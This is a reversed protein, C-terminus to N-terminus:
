VACKRLRIQIKMPRMKLLWSHLTGEHPHSVRILNRTHEHHNSDENQTCTWLYEKVRQQKM